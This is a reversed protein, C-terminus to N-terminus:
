RLCLPTDDSSLLQCYCRLRCCRWCAVAARWLAALMLISARLMYRLMHCRLAYYAYAVIAHLAYAADHCLMMAGRRRLMHALLVDAYHCRLRCSRLLARRLMLLSFDDDVRLCRASLLPAPAPPMAVDAYCRFPTAYAAAAFPM